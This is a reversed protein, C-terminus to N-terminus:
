SILEKMFINDFVLINIVIIISLLYMFTHILFPNNSLYKIKFLGIFILFFLILGFGYKAIKISSNISNIIYFRSKIFLIGSVILLPLISVKVGTWGALLFTKFTPNEPFSIRLIDPFNHIIHVKRTNEFFAENFDIIFIYSLIILILKLYKYM